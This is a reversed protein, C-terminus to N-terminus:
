IHCQRKLFRNVFLVILEREKKNTAIVIALFITIIPSLGSTTIIRIIPTSILGHIIHALYISIVGVIIAPMLFSVYYKRASFDDYYNKLLAVRIFHSVSCVGIMSVFIFLSPMGAKFFLWALPLHCLIMLETALYYTKVRGSAQVINTIPAGMQIVIGYMIFLRCFLVNQEDAIGLWWSLIQKMEIIIPIAVAMLLYILFKNGIAFLKNLSEKDNAAYSKITAPRFAVIVSNGLSMFANYVNNAVGFAANALPGFFLNLLIISGQILGVGSLSGLSTWGVFGIMKKYISKNKIRCYRCDEYQTVCITVYLSFTLGAIVFLGVVYFLLRDISSYTILYACILKMLSDICSVLAYKGMDENALVLALFPVQLLSFLFTAASIQFAIIAVDLRETPITMKNEVFLIGITEFLILLIICLCVIINISASFFERVTKNDGKGIAYSFFRQVPLAFLTVLIVSLTVVGALANYLGYDDQGLSKILLRVAYLNIIALVLVRGFLLISNGAINKIKPQQPTLAM